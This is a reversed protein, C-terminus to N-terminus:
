PEPFPGTLFTLPAPASFASTNGLPDTATATIWQGTTLSVSLQISFPVIGNALSTVTASGLLVQGEVEGSPDSSTNAYFDLTYIGAGSAIVSGTVVATNM